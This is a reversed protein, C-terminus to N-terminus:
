PNGLVSPFVKWFGEFGDKVCNDFKFRGAFGDRGYLTKGLCVGAHKDQANMDLLKRALLM